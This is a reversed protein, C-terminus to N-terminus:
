ASYDSGGHGLDPTSDSQGTDTGAGLLASGGPLAFGGYVTSVYAPAVTLGHAEFGQVQWQAFSYATPSAVYDNDNRATVTNASYDNYDITQDSSYADIRVGISCASIINNKVTNGHSGAGVLDDPSIVNDYLLQIGTTCNYADNNYAWGNNAHKFYIGGGSVSWAVNGDFRVRDSGKAILGNTGGTTWNRLYVCDHCNEEVEFGYNVNAHAYNNTIVTAGSHRHVYFGRLHTGYAECDQIRGGGSGNLLYLGEGIATDHLICARIAPSIAGDIYIGHNCGSGADVGIFGLGAGPNVGYIAKDCNQFVGGSVVTNPYNVLMGHRAKSGGDIICAPDLSYTLGPRPVTVLESYTAPAGIMGLAGPNALAVANARAFTAVASTFGDNSDNGAAGDVTIYGSGSGGAAATARRRQDAAAAARMTAFPLLLGRWPVFPTLRGRVPWLAGAIM